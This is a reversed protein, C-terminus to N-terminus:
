EAWEYVALSLKLRSSEVRASRACQQGLGEGGAGSSASVRMWAEVRQELPRQTLAHALTTRARPGGLAAQVPAPEEIARVLGRGGPQRVRQSAVLAHGLAAGKLAPRRSEYPDRDFIEQRPLQKLAQRMLSVRTISEGMRM